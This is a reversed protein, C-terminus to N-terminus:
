RSGDSGIHQDYDTEREKQVVREIIHCAHDMFSLNKSDYWFLVNWVIGFEIFCSM